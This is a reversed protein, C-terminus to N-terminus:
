SHHHNRVGNMGLLTCDSETMGIKSGRERWKDSQTEKRVSVHVACSVVPSFGGANYPWM